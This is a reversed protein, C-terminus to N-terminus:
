YAATFRQCIFRPQEMEDLLTGAYGEASIRNEAQENTVFQNIDLRYAGRQGQGFACAEGSRRANYCIAKHYSKVRIRLRGRNAAVAGGLKSCCRKLPSRLRDLDSIPPM